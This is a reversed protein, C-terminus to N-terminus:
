LRRYKENFNQFIKILVLDIFRAIYNSVYWKTNTIGISYGSTKIQFTACFLLSFINLYKFRTSIGREPEFHITNDM